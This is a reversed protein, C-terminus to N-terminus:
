GDIVDAWLQRLLFLTNLMWFGRAVRLLRRTLALGSSDEQQAGALMRLRAGLRWIRHLTYFLGTLIRINPFFLRALLSESGVQILMVLVDPLLARRVQRESGWRALIMLPFVISLLGALQMWLRLARGARPSLATFIDPAGPRLWAPKFRREAWGILTLLVTVGAVFWGSGLPAPESSRRLQPVDARDPRLSRRRAVSHAHKM